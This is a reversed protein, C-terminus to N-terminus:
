RTPRLNRMGVSRKPNLQEQRRLGYALDFDELAVKEVGIFSLVYRAEELCWGQQMACRHM